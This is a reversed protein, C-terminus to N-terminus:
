VFSEPMNLFEHHKVVCLSRNDKMTWDIDNYMSMLTSRNEFNQPHIKLEDEMLKQVEQLLQAATHGPFIKWEFVFREGDLNDLERNELSSVFFVTRGEEWAEASRLYEPCGGGLCLVSDAVVYVKAKLQKYMNDLALACCELQSQDWDLQGHLGFLETQQLGQIQNQTTSFIEQIEEGDMNRLVRQFQDREQDLYVSAWMCSNM